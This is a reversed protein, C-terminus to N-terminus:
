GVAQDRRPEAEGEERQRLHIRLQREVEASHPEELLECGETGLSRALVPQDFATCVLFLGPRAPPFPVIHFGDPRHEVYCNEGTRDAQALAAGLVPYLDAAHEDSDFPHIEAEEM